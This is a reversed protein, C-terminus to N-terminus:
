TTSLCVWSSIHWVNADGGVIMPFTPVQRAGAIQNMRPFDSAFEEASLIRSLLHFGQLIVLPMLHPQPSAHFLRAFSVAGGHSTTPCCRWIPITPGSPHCSHSHFFVDRLVLAHPQCFPSVGCRLRLHRGLDTPWGCAGKEVAIM